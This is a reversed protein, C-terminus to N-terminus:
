MRTWAMRRVWRSRQELSRVSDWSRSREVSKGSLVWPVRSLFFAVGQSLVM